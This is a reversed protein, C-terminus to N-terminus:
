LIVCKHESHRCLASGLSFGGVGEVDGNQENGGVSGDVEKNVTSFFTSLHQHQEL